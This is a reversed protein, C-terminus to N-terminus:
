SNEMKYPNIRMLIPYLLVKFNRLLFFHLACVAQVYAHSPFLSCVYLLDRLSM